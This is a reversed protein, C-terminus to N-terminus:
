IHWRACLHIDTQTRKGDKHMEAWQRYYITESARLYLSWQKNIAYRLNVYWRMGQGYIAPISNAYLIDNEYCYLRANWDRVDMIMWRAQLWMPIRPVQYQVSEAIAGGWAPTSSSTYCAGLLDTRLVWRGWEYRIQYRLQTKGNLYPSRMGLEKHRMRLFMDLHKTPQYDVQGEAEVGWTHAQRIGYKTGRYAFLDVYGNLRWHAWKRIDTSLYLGREDNGRSGEGFCSALMNDYDISYYRAIGLISVETNPRWKGGILCAVGWQDNESTAVEGFVSWRSSIYQGNIGITAQRRGHWYHANYYNPTPRLTDSLLNITATLGIHLNQHHYTANIGMVQQWAAHKRNIETETRHYGTQIISPFRGNQVNADISRYSYFASLESAGLRITTGAGRLFHYEDTGTYRQLGRNLYGLRSSTTQKGMPQQQSIVLGMGFSARYDGIVAKEVIGLNSLQVYAGYHDFGYTHRRWWPEGADREMSIGATLHQGATWKYKLRLYVPDGSYHEINRVDTRVNVEHHSQRVIEHRLSAVEDHSVDGVAVYPLLYQIDLSDLRPVLRLEYISHFQYDHAYILIEDIQDDSLFRLKQLERYTTHNLNIPQQRLELMEDTADSLDIDEGMQESLDEIQRQHAPALILEDEWDITTPENAVIPCVWLVAAITAAVSAYQRFSFM